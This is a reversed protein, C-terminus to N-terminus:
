QGGGKQTVRSAYTRFVHDWITTSMGYNFSGDGAHHIMHHRCLRKVLGTPRIDVWKHAIAHTFTQAEYVLLITGGFIAVLPFPAILQAISSLVAWIAIPYILPVGVMAHPDAHHFDHVRSLVTDPGHYGWRHISYETLSFVAWGALVAVLAYPELGYSVFGYTVLVAGLAIDLGFGIWYNAPSLVFRYLLADSRM